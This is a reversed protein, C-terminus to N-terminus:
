AVPKNRVVTRKKRAATFAAAQTRGAPRFPKGFADDFSYRDAFDEIRDNETKGLKGADVLQFVIRGFDDTRRLGWETLMTLAMPGFEQLAYDRIGDLLEQGSVHHKRSSKVTHELAESVFVYADPSFSPDKACIAKVTELFASEHM